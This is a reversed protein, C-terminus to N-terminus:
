LEFQEDGAALVVREGARAALTIPTEPDRTAFEVSAVTRGGFATALALVSAALHEIAGLPAALEGTETDISIASAPAPRIEPLPKAPSEVATTHPVATVDEDETIEADLWEDVEVMTPEQGPRDLVLVTRQAEAARTFARATAIAVLVEDTM